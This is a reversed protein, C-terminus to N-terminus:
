GCYYLGLCGTKRVVRCGWGAFIGSYMSDKRTEHEPTLSDTNHLLFIFISKYM